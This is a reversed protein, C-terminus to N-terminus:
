MEQLRLKNAEYVAMQKDWNAFAEDPTAGTQQEECGQGSYQYITWVIDGEIDLYWNIAVDRACAMDFYKAKEEISLVPRRTNIEDQTIDGVERALFMDLHALTTISWGRTPGGCFCYVPHHLVAHDCTGEHNLHYLKWDGRKWGYEEEKWIFGREIVAEKTLDGRKMKNVM